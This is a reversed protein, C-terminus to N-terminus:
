FHRRYALNIMFDPVADTALNEGIALDIAGAGQQLPLSGGVTLMVSRKGLQDLQSDYFAGHADLQAKLMVWSWPQWHLGAGGFWVSDRQREPLLDGEGLLLMGAHLYGGVRWPGILGPASGNFWLALDTAGSGLFRDADGSPLKLSAHMSWAGGDAVEMISRSLHLQLDGVGNTSETLEAQTEGGDSYRILLRNKPWSERDSNTLGFTDHWDEIFNDMYGSHHGILPLELGFQWGGAIGRKYILATRYIEGDLIISESPTQSTKSQNTIDIQLQLSSGGPPLLQSSAAAPLGHVLVFPNQNRVSFPETLLDEQAWTSSALLLGIGGLALLRRRFPLRFRLGLNKM